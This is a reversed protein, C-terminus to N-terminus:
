ELMNAVLSRLRWELGAVWGLRRWAQRPSPLDPATLGPPRATAGDGTLRHGLRAEAWQIQDAWRRLREAIVAEPLRFAAGGRRDLAAAMRLGPAPIAIGTEGARAGNIAMLAEALPASLHRNPRGRREALTDAPVGLREAFDVVVDGDPFRRPDYLALHLATQGFVRTFPTLVDQFAPRPLAALMADWGHGHRILEQATADLWAPVPRLYALVRFSRAHPRLLTYLDGLAAEPLGTIEEGTIVFLGGARDAAEKALDARIREGVDALDAERWRPRDRHSWRVHDPTSFATILPLSHNPGDSFVGVGRTRLRARNRHLAAQIATTGTKHLGIHLIVTTM